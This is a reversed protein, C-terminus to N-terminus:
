PRVLCRFPEYQLEDVKYVHLWVTAREYTPLLYAQLDAVLFTAYIRGPVLTRELATKSLSSHIPTSSGRTASILLTVGTIGAYPVYAGTTGLKQQVDIDPIFNQACNIYFHYTTPM